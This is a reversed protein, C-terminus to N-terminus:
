KIWVLWGQNGEKPHQLVFRIGSTNTKGELSDLGRGQSKFRVRRAQGICVRNAARYTSTALKKVTNSDLHDALWTTHAIEAFHHLAYESFSFEKRLTTFAAQREQQARPILSAQKWGESARMRRLRKM